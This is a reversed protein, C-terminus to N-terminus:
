DAPWLIKIAALEGGTALLPTMILVVILYAIRALKM